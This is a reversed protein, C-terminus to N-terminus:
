EVLRFAKLQRLLDATDIPKILYGDCLERFARIVVKVDSVATTMVIKVGYTSLVGRADEIARVQKVAETGDMEPMMIDMCILDYPSGNGIAMRFAEVAEKGNVAIHCEGFRSLYTQLFLRSIFDDEVVLVRLPRAGRPAQGAAQAVREVAPERRDACLRTLAAMTEAIDAQNSAGPDQVLAGLRDAAGLLVGIRDPTPVMERSRILALADEMRHALELIKVLDFFGAGGKISHVARFVRNAREEDIEAGGKELTLLDTEITALHERCEALYETALEDDLDIM